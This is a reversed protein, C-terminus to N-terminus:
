ATSDRNDYIVDVNNIQLVSSVHKFGSTSVLEFSEYDLNNRPLIM